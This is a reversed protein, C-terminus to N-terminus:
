AFKKNNMKNCTPDLCNIYFKVGGVGLVWQGGWGWSLKLYVSAKTELETTKM